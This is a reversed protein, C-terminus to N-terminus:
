GTLLFVASYDLFLFSFIESIVPDSHSIRALCAEDAPFSQAYFRQLTIVLIIVSGM